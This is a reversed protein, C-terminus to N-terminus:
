KRAMWVTLLVIGSIVGIPVGVFLLFMWTVQLVNMNALMYNTHTAIAQLDLMFQLISPMPILPYNPREDRYTTDYRCHERNPTKHVPANNRSLFPSLSLFPSM